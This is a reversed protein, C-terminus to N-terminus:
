ALLVRPRSSVPTKESVKLLLLWFFSFSSFREEGKGERWEQSKRDISHGDGVSGQLRGDRGHRRAAAANPWGHRSGDRHRRLLLLLLLMVPMLLVLLLLLAGGRPLLLWQLDVFVANFVVNARRRRQREGRRGRGRGSSM